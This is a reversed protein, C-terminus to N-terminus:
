KRPETEHYQGLFGSSCLAASNLTVGKKQSFCSLKRVHTSLISCSILSTLLNFKLPACVVFPRMEKLFTHGAGGRFTIM